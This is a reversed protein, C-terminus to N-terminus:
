HSRHVKVAVNPSAHPLHRTLFTRCVLGLSLPERRHWPLLVLVRAFPCYDATVISVTALLQLYPVVALPPWTGAALVLVYLVRVELGLPVAQERLMWTVYPVSSAAVLLAAVVLAHPVGALHLVLSLGTAIWTVRTM